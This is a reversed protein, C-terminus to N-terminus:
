DDAIVCWREFGVLFDTARDKKVQVRVAGGRLRNYAAFYGCSGTSYPFLDARM